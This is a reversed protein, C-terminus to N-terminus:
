LLGLDKASSSPSMGDLTDTFYLDLKNAYKESNKLKRRFKTALAKGKATTIHKRLEDFDQILDSM